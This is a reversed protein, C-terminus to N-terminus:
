QVTGRTEWEVTYLRGLEEICYLTKDKSNSTYWRLDGPFSEVSVAEMTHSQTTWGHELGCADKIRKM